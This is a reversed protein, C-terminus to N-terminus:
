QVVFIGHLIDLERRVCLEPFMTGNSQFKISFTNWAPLKNLHRAAQAPKHTDINKCSNIIIQSSIEIALSLSVMRRQVSVKLHQREEIHYSIHIQENCFAEIFGSRLTASWPQM